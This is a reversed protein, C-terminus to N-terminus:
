IHQIELMSHRSNIQIQIPRNQLDLNVLRLIMMLFSYIKHNLTEIVFKNKHFIAYLMAFKVSIAYKIM